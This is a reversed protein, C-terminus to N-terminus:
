AKHLQLWQAVEVYLFHPILHGAHAAVMPTTWLNHGQVFEAAADMCALLCGKSQGQVM